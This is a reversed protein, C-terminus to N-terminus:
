SSGALCQLCLIWRNSTGLHVWCRNRGLRSGNKQRLQSGYWPYPPRIRGEYCTGTPAHNSETPTKLLEKAKVEGEEHFVKRADGIAKWYTTDDWAYKLADRRADSKAKEYENLAAIRADLYAFWRKIREEETIDGPVLRKLNPPVVRGGPNGPNSKLRKREQEEKKLHTIMSGAEGFGKVVPEPIKLRASLLAIYRLQPGTAGREDVHTVKLSHMTTEEFLYHPVDNFMFKALMIAIMGSLVPQIM